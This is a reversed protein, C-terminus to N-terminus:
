NPPKHRVELKVRGPILLSKETYHITLTFGQQNDADELVVSLHGTELIQECYNVIDEDDERWDVIMVLDYREDFVDYFLEADSNQIYNEIAQLKEASYNTM